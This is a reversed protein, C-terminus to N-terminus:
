PLGGNLARVILEADRKAQGRDEPEEYIICVIHYTDPREDIIEYGILGSEHDERHIVYPHTKSYTKQLPATM